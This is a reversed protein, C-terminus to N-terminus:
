SFDFDMELLTPQVHLAEPLPFVMRRPDYFEEAPDSVEDYVFTIKTSSLEIEWHEPVDDLLAVCEREIKLEMHWKDRKDFGQISKELMERFKDDSVLLPIRSKLLLADYNGPELYKAWKTDPLSALPFRWSVEWHESRGLRFIRVIFSTKTISVSAFHTSPISCQARQLLETFDKSTAWALLLEAYFDDRTPLTSKSENM